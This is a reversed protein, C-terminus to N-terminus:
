VAVDLQAQDNGGARLHSSPNLLSVRYEGPQTIRASGAPSDIRYAVARAPGPINLRLRGETLRVLDDSQVDITSRSDLHLTSGDAFLVELRGDATRLRDGGLLPVNLPSSDARGERELTVAGEVHAVHAPAIADTETQPSQASLAAPCVVAALAFTLALRPLMPRGRVEASCTPLKCYIVLKCPNCFGGVAPRSMDKSM